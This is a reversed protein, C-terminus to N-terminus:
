RDIYMDHNVVQIRNVIFAINILESTIQINYNLVDISYLSKFMITDFINPKTTKQKNNSNIIVHFGNNPKVVVSHCDDNHQVDSSMLVSLNPNVVVNFLFYLVMITNYSNIITDKAMEFATFGVHILLIGLLGLLRHVTNALVAINTFLKAFVINVVCVSSAIRNRTVINIHYFQFNKTYQVMKFVIFMIFCLESSFSCYTVCMLYMLNFQHQKHNSQIHHENNICNQKMVALTTYIGYLEILEILETLKQDYNIIMRQNTSLIYVLRNFLYGLLLLLMLKALSMDSHIIVMKIPNAIIKQCIDNYILVKLHYLNINNDMNDDFM